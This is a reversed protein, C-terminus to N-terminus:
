ISRTIIYKKMEKEVNFPSCDLHMFRIGNKKCFEKVRKYCHHSNHRTDFGVVDCSLLGNMRDTQNTLDIVPLTFKSKDTENTVVVINYDSLDVASVTEELLEEAAVVDEQSFDLKYLANKDKLLDNERELQMVEQILREIEKDKERSEKEILKVKSDAEKWRKNVSELRKNYEDVNNKHLEEVDAVKKKLSQLEKIYVTEMDISINSSLMHMLMLLQINCALKDQEIFPFTNKVAKLRDKNFISYEATSGMGDLMNAFDGNFLLNYILFDELADDFKFQAHVKDPFQKIVEDCNERLYACMMLGVMYNYAKETDKSFVHSHKDLSKFVKNGIADLTSVMEKYRSDFNANFEEIMKLENKLFYNSYMYVINSEMNKLCMLDVALNTVKNYDVKKWLSFLTVEHKNISRAM